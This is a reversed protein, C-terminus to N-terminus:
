KAFIGLISSVISLVISFIVAWLFGGVTFGDVLNSAILIFLGNIIFSLLGLTLINIPLTLIAVIPKIFMNIVALVLAVIIATLFSNIEVNPLVYATIAVALANILLKVIFGM